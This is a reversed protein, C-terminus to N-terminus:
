HHPREDERPIVILRLEREIVFNGFHQPSGERREVCAFSVRVVFPFGLTSAYAKRRVVYAAANYPAERVLHQLREEREGLRAPILCGM